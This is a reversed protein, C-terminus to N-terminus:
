TISTIGTTRFFERCIQTVTKKRMPNREVELFLRYIPTTGNYPLQLKFSFYINARFNRYLPKAKAIEIPAVGVIKLKTVIKLANSTFNCM